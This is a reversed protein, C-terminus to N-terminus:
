LVLELEIVTDHFFCCCSYNSPETGLWYRYPAYWISKGWFGRQQDQQKEAGPYFWPFLEVLIGCNMGAWVIVANHSPNKRKRKQKERQQSPLPAYLTLLSPLVTLFFSLEPRATHKKLLAAWHTHWLFYNGQLLSLAQLMVKPFMHNADSFCRKKQVRSIDCCLGAWEYYPSEPSKDSQICDRKEWSVERFRM